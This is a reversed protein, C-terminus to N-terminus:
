YTRVRYMVIYTLNGNPEKPEKWEISIENSSARMKKLNEVKSPVAFAFIKHSVHLM